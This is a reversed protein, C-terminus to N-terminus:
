DGNIFVTIKWVGNRKQFFIRYDLPSRLKDRHIFGSIGSSTTIKCWNDENAFYDDAKVVEYSVTGVVKSKLDQEEFIEVGKDIVVLYNFPDFEDDTPFDTYTYPAIFNKDGYFRGGLLLVQKLIEWVKSEGPNEKLNWETLFGEISADEAGFSYKINEDLHKILLELDKQEVAKLLQERFMKFEPNNIGEDIPKVIVHPFFMGDKVVRSALNNSRQKDVIIQKERKNEM